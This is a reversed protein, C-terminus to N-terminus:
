IHVVPFTAELANASLTFIIGKTSINVMRLKNDPVHISHMM